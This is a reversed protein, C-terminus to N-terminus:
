QPRLATSRRRLVHIPSGQTTEVWNGGVQEQVPALDRDQLVLVSVTERRAPSLNALHTRVGIWAARRKVPYYVVFSCVAVDDARVAQAIQADFEHADRERWHQVTLVQRAPMFCSAVVLAGIVWRRAAPSGTSELFALLFIAAPVLGM